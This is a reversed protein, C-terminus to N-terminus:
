ISLSRTSASYLLRQGVGLGLGRLDSGVGARHALGDLRVDGGLGLGLSGVHDRLGLSGDLGLLLLGESSCAVTASVETSTAARRIPSSRVSPSCRAMM